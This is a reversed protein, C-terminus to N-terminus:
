IYTKTKYDVVFIIRDEFINLITGFLKDQVEPCLYDSGWTCITSSGLVYYNDITGWLIQRTSWSVFM